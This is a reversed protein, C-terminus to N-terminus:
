ITPILEEDEPSRPLSCILITEALLKKWPETKRKVGDEWLCYKLQHPIHWLCRQVIINVKNGLGRLISADGDTVLLFEDFFDFDALIPKFLKNWDTEYRGIALNAIRVGGDVRKQIFVKLEHGRKKIGKIPIGTGDAEGAAQEDPDLGFEISEAEQQVSRWVTMRCLKIGFMGVVKEAVRYTTLSGLLALRKRTEPSTIVRPELGLLTRTIFMKKQCAKCQIQLQPIKLVAFITCLSTLKGRRTKWIFVHDNGCRSCSFPKQAWSMYESASALLVSHFLDGLVLPLLQTFACVITDHKCDPLDISYNVKFNIKM